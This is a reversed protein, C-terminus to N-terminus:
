PETLVTVRAEAVNQVGRESLTGLWRKLDAVAAGQQLWGQPVEVPDATAVAVVIDMGYPPTVEIDYGDPLVLPEGAPLLPNARGPGSGDRRPIDPRPHLVVVECRSNVDFLYVHSPRTARVMFRIREGRHYTVRREGHTTGLELAIDPNEPLTREYCRSVPKWLDPPLLTKDLEVSASRLGASSRSDVLDLTVRIYELHDDVKGHLVSQAQMVDGVVSSVQKRPVSPTPKMGRSRLEKAPLGGIERRPHLATLKRNPRDQALAANLWSALHAGLREPQPVDGAVAVTRVYVTRKDRLGRELQRVVDRGLFDVDRRCLDPDVQRVRERESAVIEVGGSDTRQNVVVSLLLGQECSGSWKGKLDLVAGDDGSIPVTTVGYGNLEDRFGASLTESLPLRLGTGQEFFDDPTVLVPKRKLADKSALERALEHVATHLADYAAAPGAGAIGALGMAVLLWAARFFEAPTGRQDNRTHTM